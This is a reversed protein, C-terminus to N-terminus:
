SRIPKRSTTVYRPQISGSTLSAIQGADSPDPSRGSDPDRDANPFQENAQM